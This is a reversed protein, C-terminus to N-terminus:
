LGHKHFLEELIRRKQLIWTNSPGRESSDYTTSFSIYFYITMKAKNADSISDYVSKAEQLQTTSIPLDYTAEFLKKTDLVYIIGYVAGDSYIGM